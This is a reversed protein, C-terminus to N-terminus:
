AAASPKESVAAPETSSRRKTFLQKSALAYQLLTFFNIRSRKMLQLAYCGNFVLQFLPNPPLKILQRIIPQLFPYRVALHFFKQLNEMQQIEKNRIVSGTFYSGGIEDVPLTHGIEEEVLARIETGPYPQLVSCWPFDPRIKANMKVTEFADDLSEGPLGLMNYTGFHLKHKHFLRAAEYIDEDKVRKALVGNRIAEVGSEVGFVTSICGAEKLAVVLQEDVLNARVTSLFPLGIEKRYLELFPYLWKRNVILIDDSFGIFRVPYNNKVHKIEEIVNEASRFRVWKGKGHYLKMLTHNACFNCKYACGRGSIFNKSTERKTLPYRDYYTRDPWPLSDLDTVLPRIPNEIIEEDCKAWINDIKCPDGDGDLARGLDDAAEEGEGVCLYDVDPHEIMKPYFTPHPGGFLSVIEPHRTKYRHAFDIAWHHMGTTCSFGIIQPNYSAVDAFANTGQVDIFIRAEHGARQLFASLSMLGLNETYLNQILAFRAM